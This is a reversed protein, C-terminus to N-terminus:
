IISIIDAKFDLRWIMIFLRYCLCMQKLVIIGIDEGVAERCYTNIFYLINGMKSVMDYDSLIKNKLEEHPSVMVEEASLMKGINIKQIDYKLDHTKKLIKLLKASENSQSIRESIM